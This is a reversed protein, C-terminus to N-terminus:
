IDGETQLADVANSAPRLSLPIQTSPILVGGGEGIDRNASVKTAAATWDGRLAEVSLSCHVVTQPAPTSDSVYEYLVGRNWGGSDRSLHLWLDRTQKNTALASM